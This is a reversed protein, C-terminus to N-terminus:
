ECPGGALLRVLEPRNMKERVLKRVNDSCDQQLAQEAVEVAEALSVQRLVAKVRLLNAASMSLTRYGLGMLMVAGMPDGAMEGCVSVHKNEAAAGEAIIKLAKLLSPHCAHYLEAVRPNNRDVALLYQTLDNTGVSLFDVRRALERVQYVAAPVEIMVGVHPRELEYGEEETLEKFAQDVLRLASDLEQVHSIMPLLLSLNNYGESARMTARIQTLFIEPHDLTVRIGRWGLFPNEENIPFYPLSKDGGIDLTRMTVRRPHFLKLQERYEKMQESESPFRDRVLFPIETRYLGVGEAGRDTAVLMDIRLGTNAWLAMKCGDASVCPEDLLVELDAALLKEEEWQQRFGELTERSANVVMRGNHGDVVVDAKELSSWPLDVAGMITPIGMARGLIAMHSNRSGGVSVIGVVKPIPVEAFVTAALEEGVLVIQDPYSTRRTDSQQLKALVRRGLDRIDAARERLYDDEMSEFLQIHNLVVEAWASQASLGGKIAAIVEGGLASDELMRVYVDFLSLEEASLKGEMSGQIERIDFKTQKLAKRFVQLEEVSDESPKNLVAELSAPPAIVMATGIGIGSACALGTYVKEDGERSPQKDLRAARALDGVADAHAIVGALQASITVLFAEESEDFRRKAEQVILVGLVKRHHIIPAGLFAGFAEEGTEPFYAYKPHEDAKDLNLPEAKSAVTGVLGQNLKLRVKGVSLPNLGETAMLVYSDTEADYLYVSCISTSMVEKVRHVIIELVAEFGKAANVEQVISRLSELM